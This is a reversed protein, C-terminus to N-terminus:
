NGEPAVEITPLLLPQGGLLGGAVPALSEATRGTLNLLGRTIPVGARSYAPAALLSGGVLAAAPALNGALAQQVIALGTLPAVLAGEGSKKGVIDQAAQAFDQDTMKGRAATRPSAQKMSQLLQKPTFSGSEAVAKNVAKEIPIINRYAENVKALAASGTDDQRALEKRFASKVENLAIATDPRGSKFKM